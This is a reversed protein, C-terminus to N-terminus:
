RKMHLRGVVPTLVVWVAIGSLGQMINGILGGTAAAWGTGAVGPWTGTSEGPLRTTDRGTVM